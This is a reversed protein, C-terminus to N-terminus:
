QGPNAELETAWLNLTIRAREVSNTGGRADVEVLDVRHPLTALHQLLELLRRYPSRPNLGGVRPQAQVEAPVVSFTHNTIVRTEPRGFSVVLDLGMPLSAAELEQLWQEIGQRGPLLAAQAEQFGQEIAAAGGAESLTREM